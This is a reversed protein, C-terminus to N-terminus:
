KNTIGYQADLLDQKSANRRKLAQIKEANAVRAKVKYAKWYEMQNVTLIMKISNEAGQYISRRKQRFLAEDSQAFKQIAELDKQKRIIIKSLSARQADEIKLEKTYFEMEAGISVEQAFIASFSFVLVIAVLIRKM